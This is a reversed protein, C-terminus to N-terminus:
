NNPKARKKESSTSKHITKGDKNIDNFINNEKVRHPVLQQWMFIQM